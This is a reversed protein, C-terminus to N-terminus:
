VTCTKRHINTRVKMVSVQFAIFFTIPYWNQSKIYINIQRLIHKFLDINFYIFLPSKPTMIVLGARCTIYSGNEFAEFDQSVHVQLVMLYQMFHKPLEIIIDIHKNWHEYTNRTINLDITNLTWADKLNYDLVHLHFWCTKFFWVNTRELILVSFYRKFYYLSFAKNLDSFEPFLILLLM